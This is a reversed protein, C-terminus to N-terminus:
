DRDNKIDAEIFYHFYWCVKPVTGAVLHSLTFSQRASLMHKSYALDRGKRMVNPSHTIFLFYKFHSVLLAM